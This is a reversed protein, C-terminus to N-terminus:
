RGLRLMRVLLNARVQPIQERVEVRMGSEPRFDLSQARKRFMACDVQAASDKLCFYWHGSPALKVGSLEGSVWVTEFQNELLTRVRRNLESVAIVLAAEPGLDLQMPTM